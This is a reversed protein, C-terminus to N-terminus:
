VPTSADVAHERVSSLWALSWQNSPREQRREGWTSAFGILLATSNADGITSLQIAIVPQKVSVLLRPPELRSLLQRSNYRRRSSARRSIESYSLKRLLCLPIEPTKLAGLSRLRSALM